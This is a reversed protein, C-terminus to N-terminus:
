PQLEPQPPSCPASYPAPKMWPDGKPWRYRPLKPMRLLAGRPAEVFCRMGKAARGRPGDCGTPPLDDSVRAAAAPHCRRSRRATVATVARPPNGRNHDILQRPRGNSVGTGAPMGPRLLASPPGRKEPRGAELARLRARPYPALALARRPCSSTGASRGLSRAPCALTVGLGPFVIRLTRSCCAAIASGQSDPSDLSSVRPNLWRRKRSGIPKDRRAFGFRRGMGLQLVGLIPEPRGAQPSVRRNVLGRM